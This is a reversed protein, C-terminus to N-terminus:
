SQYMEKDIIQDDDSAKMLKSGSEAPTAVPKSNEMTFKKLTEKTYTPQGIWINGTNCRIVKVGLFHHLKGM